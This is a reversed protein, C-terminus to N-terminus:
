DHQAPTIIEVSFWDEDSHIRLEFKTDYYLKLQEEVNILGIGAKSTGEKRFSSNKISFVSQTENTKLELVITLGGDMRGGHKFANEV